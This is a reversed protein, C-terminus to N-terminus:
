VVVTEVPKVDTEVREDVVLEVAVVVEVNVECVVTAANGEQRIAVAM